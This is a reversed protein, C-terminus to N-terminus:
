QWLNNLLRSWGSKRLYNNLSVTEEITSYISNRGKIMEKIFYLTAYESILENKFVELSYSFFPFYLPDLLLHTNFCYKSKREEILDFAKFFLTADKDTFDNSNLYEKFIM